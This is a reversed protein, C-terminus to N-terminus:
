YCCKCDFPCLPTDGGRGLGLDHAKFVNLGSANDFRHVRANQPDIVKRPDYEEGFVNDRAREARRREKKAKAEARSIAEAEAERAAREADRVAKKASLSGFIDDLESAEGGRGGAASPAAAPVDTQVAHKRKKKRRPADELSGSQM